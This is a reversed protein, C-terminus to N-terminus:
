VPQVHSQAEMLETLEHEIHYQEKFHNNYLNVIKYLWYVVGLGLTALTILACNRIFVWQSTYKREPYFTSLFDYQRKEHENLDKSLLYAIAFVPFILIISAAWLKANRRPIPKPSWEKNYYGAVKQEFEVQRQFHRNRRDVSYYFFPFFAVGFSAIAGLFWMSFWIKRDPKAGAIIKTEM